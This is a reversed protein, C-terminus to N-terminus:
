LLVFINSLYGLFKWLSNTIIYTQSFVQSAIAPCECTKNDNHNFNKIEDRLNAIKKEKRKKKFNPPFDALTKCQAQQENSCRRQGQRSRVAVDFIERLIDLNKHGYYYHTENFTHRESIQRPVKNSLYSYSRIKKLQNM